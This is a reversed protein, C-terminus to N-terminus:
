QEDQGEDKQRDSNAGLVRDFVVTEQDLLSIVLFFPYNLVYVGKVASSAAINSVAECILIRYFYLLVLEAVGYVDHPGASSRAKGVGVDIVTILNKSECLVM